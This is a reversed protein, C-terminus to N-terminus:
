NDNKSSQINIFNNSLNIRSAYICQYVFITVNQTVQQSLNIWKRKWDLSSFQGKQAFFYSGTQVRLERVSLVRHIENAKEGTANIENRLESLTQSEVVLEM